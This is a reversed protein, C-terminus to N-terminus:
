IAQLERYAAEAKAREQRLHVVSRLLDQLQCHVFGAMDRIGRPNQDTGAFRRENLTSDVVAAAGELRRLKDELAQFQSDTM